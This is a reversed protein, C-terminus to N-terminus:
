YLLPVCPRELLSMTTDQGIATYSQGDSMSSIWLEEIGPWQRFTMSGPEPSTKLSSEPALPFLRKQNLSFAPHTVRVASRHIVRGIVMASITSKRCAIEAQHFVTPNIINATLLFARLCTSDIGPDPLAGGTKSCYVM